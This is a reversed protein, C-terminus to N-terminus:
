GDAGEKHPKALRCESRETIPPPRESKMESNIDQGITRRCARNPTRQTTMRQSTMYISKNQSRDNSRDFHDTRDKDHRAVHGTTKIQQTIHGM